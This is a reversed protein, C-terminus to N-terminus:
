GGIQIRFRNGNGKKGRNDKLRELMEKNKKDMIEDFKVQTIKKGKTPEIIETKETPNLVIESCVITQKGDQIELILGPLGGFMEPGNSIPIEPTYWATTTITVTKQTEEDNILSSQERTRTKTAKYCTYKGITKTEGSMEWEYKPLKDQILFRKSSIETKNTYRNEKINKYLIDSNSTGGISMIRVGNSAQPAKLQAEQRYTSENQNFNLHYTRQFHKKMQEQIMKQMSSSTEKDEGLKINVKRHTKYTAKGSFNQANLSFTFIFVTIILTINKM